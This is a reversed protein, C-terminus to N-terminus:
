VKLFFSSLNIKTVRVFTMKQFSMGICKFIRRKFDRQSNYKVLNTRPAPPTPCHSGWSGPLTRSGFWATWVLPSWPCIWAIRLIKPNKFNPKIYFNVLNFKLLQRRKFNINKGYHTINYVDFGINAFLNKEPFFLIIYATLCSLHFVINSLKVDKILTIGM